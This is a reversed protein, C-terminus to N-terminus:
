NTKYIVALLFLLLLYPVTSYEMAHILVVIAIKKKKKELLDSGIPIAVSLAM